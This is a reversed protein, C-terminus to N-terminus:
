CRDFGPKAAGCVNKVNSAAPSHGDGAANAPAVAATITGVALVAGGLVGLIRRKAIRSM